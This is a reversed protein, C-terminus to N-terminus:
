FRSIAPAPRSRRRIDAVNIHLANPDSHCVQDDIWGLVRDASAEGDSAAVVRTIAAALTGPGGGSYGFNWGDHPHRPDRPLPEMSGDAHEIFVPLDGRYRSNAAVISDGDGLESALYNPWLMAFEAMGATEPHEDHRRAVLLQSRREFGFEVHDLLDDGIPTDSAGWLIAKALERHAPTPDGSPEGWAVNERLFREEVETIDYARVKTPRYADDLDRTLCQEAIALAQHVVPDAHAGGFKGVEDAWQWIQQLLVRQAGEDADNEPHYYAAVLDHESPSLSPQVLRAAWVTPSDERRRGDASSPTADDWWQKDRAYDEAKTMCDQALLGCAKRATAVHPDATAVRALVSLASSTAALGYPDYICDVATHHSQWAEVTAATYAAGPYAEVSDGVLREIDAYTSTRWRPNPRPRADAENRRAGFQNPLLQSLGARTGRKPEAPVSPYELLLNMVRTQSWQGPFCEMWVADAARGHLFRDSVIATIEEIYTQLGFSEQMSGLLVVTRRGEPAEGSWIRVHVVGPQDRLVPYRVLHDAVRKLPALPKDLLDARVSLIQGALLAKAAEVDVPWWLHVRDSLATPAALKRERVLQRVRTPTVGLEQAVHEATLPTAEPHGM